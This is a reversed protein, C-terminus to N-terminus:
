RSAKKPLEPADMVCRLGLSYGYNSTDTPVYYRHTTRQFSFSCFDAGGRIVKFKKGYTESAVPNGAYPQYWSSTWEWVNGAM